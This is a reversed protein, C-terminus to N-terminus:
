ITSLGTVSLELSSLGSYMSPADLCCSCSPSPRRLRDLRWLLGLNGSNFNQPWDDREDVERAKSLGTTQKQYFISLFESTRYGILNLDCDNGIIPGNRQVRTVTLHWFFMPSVDMSLNMRSTRM